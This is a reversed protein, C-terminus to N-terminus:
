EKIQVREGERRLIREHESCREVTSAHEGLSGHRVVGTVSAYELVFFGVSLTLGVLLGIFFDISLVVATLVLMVWEEFAIRAYSVVIWQHILDFAFKVLVSGFVVRPVYEVCPAIKLAFIGALAM